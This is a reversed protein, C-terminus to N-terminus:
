FVIFATFLLSYLLLSYWSIFAWHMTVLTFEPLYRTPILSKDLTTETVDQRVVKFKSYELWGETYEANFVM